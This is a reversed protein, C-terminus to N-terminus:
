YIRYSVGFRLLRSHAELPNSGGQTYYNTLGYAYSLDVGFRQYEYLLALKARWDTPANPKKLNTTYIDGESTAKGKDYSGTNIGIDAGGVVDLSTKKIHFRYGLYPNINIFQNQFYASGTAQNVFPYPTLINFTFFVQNSQVATVSTKSRLVDYGSQLGAIFGNKTM